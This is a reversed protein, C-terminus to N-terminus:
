MSTQQVKHRGVLPKLREALNRFTTMIAVFSGCHHSSGPAANVAARHVFELTHAMSSVTDFLTSGGSLVGLAGAAPSDLLAFATGTRTEMDFVKGAGRCARFFAAYDIAPLGPHHLLECAVFHRQEPLQEGPAAVRDGLHSRLQGVAKCPGAEDEASGLHGTAMDDTDDVPQIMYSGSRADFAGATLFDFLQYAALAVSPGINLDTAWLRLLGDEKHVVFDITAHGAHM